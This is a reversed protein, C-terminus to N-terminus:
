RDKGHPRQGSTWMGDHPQGARRARRRDAAVFSEAMAQGLPSQKEIVLRAWVGLKLTWQFEEPLYDWRYNNCTAHAPLYNDVRHSGGDSHAHVHDAEWRGELPGGCLHCRNGTKAAIADREHRTLRQRPPRLRRSRRRRERLERLAAALCAVEMSIGASPSVAVKAM